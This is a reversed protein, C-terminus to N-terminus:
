IWDFIGGGGGGGRREGEREGVCVEDPIAGPEGNGGGDVRIGVM